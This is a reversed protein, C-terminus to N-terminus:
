GTTCKPDEEMTLVPFADLFNVTPTVSFVLSFFHIKDDYQRMKEQRM